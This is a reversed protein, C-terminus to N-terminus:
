KHSLTELPTLKSLRYYRVYAFLIISYNLISQNNCLTSFAFFDFFERTIKRTLSLTWGGLTADLTRRNASRTIPSIIMGLFVDMEKYIYTHIYTHIYIDIYTCM